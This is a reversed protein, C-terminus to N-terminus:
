TRDHRGLFLVLWPSLSPVASVLCAKMAATCRGQVALDPLAPWRDDRSRTGAVGRRRCTAARAGYRSTYGCILRETKRAPSGAGM